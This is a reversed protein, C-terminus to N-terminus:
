VNVVPHVGRRREGIHERLRLPQDVKGLRLINRQSQNAARRNMQLNGRNLLHGMVRGLPGSPRRLQAAVLRALVPPFM